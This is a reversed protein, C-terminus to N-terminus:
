FHVSTGREKIAPILTRTLQLKDLLIEAGFSCAMTKTANDVFISMAVLRPGNPGLQSLFIMDAPTLMHVDILLIQPKFEDIMSKTQVFDSAEGVIQINAESAIIRRVAIRIVAADDALLVTIPMYVPFTACRGSRTQLTRSWVNAQPLCRM